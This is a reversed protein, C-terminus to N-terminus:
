QSFLKKKFLFYIRISVKGDRHHGMDFCDLFHQLVQDENWVGSAYNPHCKASYVGRL